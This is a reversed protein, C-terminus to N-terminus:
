RTSRACSRSRQEVTEIQGPPPPPTPQQYGPGRTCGGVRRDRDTRTPISLTTVLNGNRVGSEATTGTRGTFALGGQPNLGLHGVYYGRGGVQVQGAMIEAAVPVGGRLWDLILFIGEAHIIKDKLLLFSIESGGDNDDGDGHREGSGVTANGAETQIRRSCQVM